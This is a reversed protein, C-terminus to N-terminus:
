LFCPLLVSLLDFMPHLPVILLLTLVFVKLFIRHFSFALIFQELNGNASQLELIILKRLFILNGIFLEFEDFIQVVLNLLRLICATCLILVISASEHSAYRLIALARLFSRYFWSYIVVFIASSDHQRIKLDFLWACALAKSM